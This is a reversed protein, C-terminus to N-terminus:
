SQVLGSATFTLGNGSVTYRIVETGSLVKFGNWEAMGGAEITSTPLIVESDAISGASAQIALKVTVDTASPNTITMERLTYTYGSSGTFATGTGSSLAAPGVIRTITDAM